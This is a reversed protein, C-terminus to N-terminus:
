FLRGSQTCWRMLPQTQRKGSRRTGMLLNTLWGQPEGLALREAMAWKHIGVIGSDGRHHLPLAIAWRLKAPLWPTAESGAVPKM